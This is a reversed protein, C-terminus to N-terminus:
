RASRRSRSAAPPFSGYLGVGFFPRPARRRSQARSTEVSPSGENPTVLARVSIPESRARRPPLPCPTTDGRRSPPRLRRALSWRHSRRTPRHLRHWFSRACLPRCQGDVHLRDRWRGSLIQTPEQFSASMSMRQGSPRRYSPSRVNPSAPQLRPAARRAVNQPAACYGYISGELRPKVGRSNLPM